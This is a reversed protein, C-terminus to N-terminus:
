NVWNGRSCSLDALMVNWDDLARGFPCDFVQPEGDVGRDRRLWKYVRAFSRRFSMDVGRRVRADHSAFVFARAIIILEARRHEDDTM